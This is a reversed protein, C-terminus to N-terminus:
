LEIGEQIKESTKVNDMERQIIESSYFYKKLLEKSVQKNASVDKKIKQNFFHLGDLTRIQMLYLIKELDKGREQITQKIKEINEGELLVGSALMSAFQFDRPAFELAEFDIINAKVKGDDTEEFLINDRNFDDHSLVYSSLDSITKNFKSALLNKAMFKIYKNDTSNYILELRKKLNNTRFESGKYKSLIEEFNKESEILANYENESLKGYIHKGPVHKIIKCSKSNSFDQMSFIKPVNETDISNLLKQEAYDQNSINRNKLKAVYKGNPTSIILVKSNMARERTQIDMNEFLYDLKEEDYYKMLFCLVDAEIEGTSKAKPFDFQKGSDTPKKFILKEM